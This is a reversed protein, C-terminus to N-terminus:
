RGTRTVVQIAGQQVDLGFLGGAESPSLFRIYDTNALPLNRLMDIGGLRNNNEFVMLQSAAGGMGTSYTRFWQPRSNMVLDYANGIGREMAAQIEPQSIRNRDPAAAGGGPNASCAVLSGLALAAALRLTTTHNM